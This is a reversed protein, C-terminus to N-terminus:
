VGAYSHLGAVWLNVVIYTFIVGVYGLILLWASRTGRWGKLHHAHLYAAYVLWTVLSSTEKPDWGWYRGWASNAWWAGLAVGLAMLPFGVMVSWEGVDELAARSPMRPFRKPEGQVLYLVASAFSVSLAAYSIMMTAVHIGLIRNAQLAPVLTVLKSPFFLANLALISLVLAMSVLGLARQRYKLEYVCYFFTVGWAFAVNYEYMNGLPPRAAALWRTVMAATLTLLAAVAAITAASGAANSSTPAAVVLRLSGAETAAERVTLRVGILNAAYLAVAAGAAFMSLVVFSYSLSEM